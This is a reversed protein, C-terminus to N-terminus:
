SMEVAPYSVAAKNAIMEFIKIAENLATSNGELAIRIESQETRGMGVVVGAYIVLFGIGIVLFIWSISILMAKSQNINFNQFVAHTLPFFVQKVVHEYKMKDDRYYEELDSIVPSSLWTRVRIAFLSIIISSLLSGIGVFYLTYYLPESLKGLISFTGLGVIIGTVITVYGILNGAKSDLDRSTQLEIDYRKRVLDLLLEEKKNGADSNNNELASNTESKDSEMVYVILM